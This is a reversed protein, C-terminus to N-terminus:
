RQKTHTHIELGGVLPWLANYLMATVGALLGLLASVLLALVVFAVIFPVITFRFGAFGLSAVFGEVGGLGGSVLGLLYLAVIGVLVIAWFCVVLYFTVRVASRVDISHVETRGLKRESM